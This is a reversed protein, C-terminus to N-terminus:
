NDLLYEIIDNQQSLSNEVIAKWFNYGFANKKSEATNELYASIEEIPPTNALNTISSQINTIVENSNLAFRNCLDLRTYHENIINFLDVDIGNTNELYFELQLIENEINFNVFLYQEEPLEDLYLNLFARHGEACTVINGKASNCQTCCPFLNLPNVVFESYDEKPLIHDMSNTENITCYQCTNIIRGFENTTLETKLKAIRSNRYSYLNLLDDRNQNRYGHTTVTELTNLRFHITYNRFLLQINNSLARLRQRLDANKKAGIVDTHFDFPDETYYNLNKM